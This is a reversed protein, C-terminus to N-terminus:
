ALEELSPNNKLATKSTAQLSNDVVVNQDNHNTEFNGVDKLPQKLSDQLNTAQEATAPRVTEEIKIQDDNEDIYMRKFSAEEVIQRWEGASFVKQLAHEACRM